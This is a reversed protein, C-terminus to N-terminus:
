LRLNLITGFRQVDDIDMSWNVNKFVNCFSDKLYKRWDRRLTPEIAIKSMNICFM